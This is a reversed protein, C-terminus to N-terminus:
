TCCIAWKRCCQWLEFNTIKWSFCKFTKFHWLKRNTCRRCLQEGAALKAFQTIVNYRNFTCRCVKKEIGIVWFHWIKLQSVRTAFSRQIWRNCILMVFFLSHNRLCRWGTPWHQSCVNRTFPTNPKACEYMFKMTWTNLVYLPLGFHTSEKRQPIPPFPKQLQRWVNWKKAGGTCNNRELVDHLVVVLLYNFETTTTTTTLVSNRLLM